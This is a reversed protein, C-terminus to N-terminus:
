LTSPYKAEAQPSNIWREPQWVETNIEEPVEGQIEASLSQGLSLYPGKLSCTLGSQLWFVPHVAPVPDTDICTHPLSGTAQEVLM